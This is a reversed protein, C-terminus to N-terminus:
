RRAYEDYREHAKERAVEFAHSTDVEPYDIVHDFRRTGSVGGGGEGSAGTTGNGTGGNGGTGGAAQAVTVGSAAVALGLLTALLTHRAKM